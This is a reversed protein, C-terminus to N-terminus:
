NISIVMFHRSNTVYVVRACLFVRVSLISLNEFQGAVM